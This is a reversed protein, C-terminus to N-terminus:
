IPKNVLDTIASVRREHRRVQATLRTVRDELDAIRKMSDSSGKHEFGEVQEVLGFFDVMTLDLAAVIRDLTDIAMSGGGEISAITKRSMKSATAFDARSLGLFQRQEKLVVGIRKRTDTASSSPYDPEESTGILELVVPTKLPPATVVVPPLESLENVLEPTWKKGSPCPVRDFNLESAIGFNSYGADQLERIKFCVDMEDGNLQRGSCIRVGHRVQM